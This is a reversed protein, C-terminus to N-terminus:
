MDPVYAVVEMEIDFGFHIDVGSIVTRAPPTDGTFYEAYVKNFEDWFFVDRLYVTTKVVQELSSGAEELIGRINEMVRKAQESVSGRVMEGTEPEIPLQGATYLINGLILAQSYCGRPLPAKSSRVERIDM